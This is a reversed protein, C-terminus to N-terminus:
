GEPTHVSRQLSIRYYNWLVCFSSFIAFFGWAGWPAQAGWEWLSLGIGLSASFSWISKLKLMSLFVDGDANRGLLSEIGIGMLASGALRASLPDVPEPGWGFLELTMVPAIMLPIAFVIDAYFHFVFWGRLAPPVIPSTPNQTMLLSKQFSALLYASRLMFANYLARIM